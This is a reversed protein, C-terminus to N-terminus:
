SAPRAAVALVSVGLVALATAIVWPGMSTSGRHVPARTDSVVPTAPVGAVVTSYAIQLTPTAARDVSIRLFTIKGRDITAEAEGITEPVGFRQRLPSGLRTWTWAVHQGDVQFNDPVVKQDPNVFRLV